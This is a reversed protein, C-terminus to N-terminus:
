KWLFLAGTSQYTGTWGSPNTGCFPSSLVTNIPISASIDLVAPNAGTVTGVPTGTAKTEYVCTIGGVTADVQAGKSTLTGNYGETWHAELTGSNLVTVHWGETCGFFILGKEKETLPGSATVGSGQSTIEGEATSVCSIDGLPSHLTVHGVSVAHIIKADTTKATDTTVTTASASAAFAMLAAAAVALLGLIKVYKM